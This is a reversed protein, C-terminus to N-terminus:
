EILGEKSLIVIENEGNSKNSYILYGYSVEDATVFLSRKFTGKFLINYFWLPNEELKKLGKMTLIFIDEIILENNDNM